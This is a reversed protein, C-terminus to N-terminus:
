CNTCPRPGSAHESRTHVYAPMRKRKVFMHTQTAIAITQDHTCTPPCSKEDHIQVPIAIENQDHTGTPLSRPVMGLPGNISM